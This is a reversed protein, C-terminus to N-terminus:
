HRSFEFLLIIAWSDPDRYRWMTEEKDLSEEIRSSNAQIGIKRDCSQTIIVQLNKSGTSVSGWRWFWSYNFTCHSKLLYYSHTWCSKFILFNFFYFFLFIFFFFVPLIPGLGFSLIGWWSRFNKGLMFILNVQSGVWKKFNRKFFFWIQKNRGQRLM